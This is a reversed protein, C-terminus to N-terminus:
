KVNKIHNDHFVINWPTVELSVTLQRLFILTAMRVDLGNFSKRTYNENRQSPTTYFNGLVNGYNEETAM